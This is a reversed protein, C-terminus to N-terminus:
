QETVYMKATALIHTTYYSQVFYKLVNTMIANLFYINFKLICKNNFVFSTRM